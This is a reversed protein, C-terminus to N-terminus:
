VGLYSRSTPSRTEPRLARELSYKVDAATVPRAYPAHFTVNRRLHFTYLTGDGSVDWREAAALAVRNASDLRVLGAYINQLLECPVDGNALAPDWTTPDGALPYRLVGATHTAAHPRSCGATVGM